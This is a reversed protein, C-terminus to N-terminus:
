SRTPEAGASHAATAFLATCDLKATEQQPETRFLVEQQRQGEGGRVHSQWDARRARM